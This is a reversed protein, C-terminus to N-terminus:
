CSSRCCRSLTTVVSTGTEGLREPTRGHSQRDAEDERIPTRDLGLHQEGIGHSHQEQLRARSLDAVLLAVRGVQPSAELHSSGLSTVGASRGASGTM